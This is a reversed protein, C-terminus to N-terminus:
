NTLSAQLIRRIESFLSEHFIIILKKNNAKNHRSFLIFSIIFGFSFLTFRSTFNLCRNDEFKAKEKVQLYYKM